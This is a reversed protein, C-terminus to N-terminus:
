EGMKYKNDQQVFDDMLRDEIRRIELGDPSSGKYGSRHINPRTRSTDLAELVELDIDKTLRQIYKQEERSPTGQPGKGYKEFKKRAQERFSLLGELNGRSEPFAREYREWPVWGTPYDPDGGLPWDYGEARKLLEQRVREESEGAM